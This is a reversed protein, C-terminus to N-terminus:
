AGRRRWMLLGGGALAAVILAGLAYPWWASSGDDGDDGRDPGAGAAALPLAFVQHGANDVAYAVDDTVVLPGTFAGAFGDGAEAAASLVDGSALRLVGRSRQDVAYVGDPGAAVATIEGLPQDTPPWTPEDSLGWRDWRGDVPGGRVVVTSVKGDSLRHLLLGGAIWLGGDRDLALGAPSPVAVETAPGGAATAQSGGNGAVTSIDGGPSVARVRHSDGDGIYLTGDPAVALGGPRGLSAETAPGGDVPTGAPAIEGSGAVVSLRGEPTLAFVRALGADAIYVTRDPGVALSQPLALDVETASSGDPIDTVRNGATGTGAVTSIAGDPAVARVRHNGADSIYVTGDAAAAVGAPNDLLAQAAPGGDGSFGATGTGAVVRVEAGEQAALVASPLVTVAVVASTTIM